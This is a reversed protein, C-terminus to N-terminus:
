RKLKANDAISQEVDNVRMIFRYKGNLPKVFPINEVFSLTDFVLSHNIRGVYKSWDSGTEPSHLIVTLQKQDYLVQFALIRGDERFMHTFFESHVVNGAQDTVLDNSRGIVEKILPFGRGCPCLNDGMAILDGTNYRPLFFADNTLDTSILEGGELTETYCRTTLLHFGNKYECEYAMVGADNCGYQNFCPAGFAAEITERMKPTLMDATCVVARLNFQLKIPNKLLHLALQHIASAYGYLLRFGGKAIESGYTNLMSASMDFASFLRVNMLKYYIAQKYGTSFLSSGALFAVPEGLRYGAVKWSLLISAWLHSQSKVGTVYVFPQGTSGGTKKRVVKGTYYRNLLLDRNQNAYAKDIVPFHELGEYDKYLSSCRRVMEVYEKLLATQHQKIAEPTDYEIREIDRMVKLISTGRVADIIGFGIKARWQQLTAIAKTM